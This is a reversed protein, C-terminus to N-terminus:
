KFLKSLSQTLDADNVKTTQSFHSSFLLTQVFARKVQILTNDYVDQWHQFLKIRESIFVAHSVSSDLSVSKNRIIQIPVFNNNFLYHIYNIFLFDLAQKPHRDYLTIESFWYKYKIKLGM